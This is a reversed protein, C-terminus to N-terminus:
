LHSQLQKTRWIVWVIHQRVNSASAKTHRKRRNLLECTESLVAMGELSWRRSAGETNKTETTSLFRSWRWSFACASSTQWSVALVSESWTWPLLESPIILSWRRGRRFFARWPQSPLGALLGLGKLECSSGAAASKEKPTPTKYWAASVNPNQVM